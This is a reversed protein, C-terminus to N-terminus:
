LILLVLKEVEQEAEARTATFLSLNFRAMVPAFTNAHILWVPAVIIIHTWVQKHLCQPSIDEPINRWVSNDDMYCFIKWLTLEFKLSLYITVCRDAADSWSNIGWLFKIIVLSSFLYRYKYLLFAQIKLFAPYETYQWLWLFKSPLRSCRTM